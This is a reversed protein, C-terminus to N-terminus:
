DSSRYSLILGSRQSGKYVLWGFAPLVGSSTRSEVSESGSFLVELLPAEYV